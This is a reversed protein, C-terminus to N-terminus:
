VELALAYETPRLHIQTLTKTHTLLTRRSCTRGNDGSGASTRAKSLLSGTCPRSETQTSSLWSINGGPFVWETLQVLRTGASLSLLQQFRPRKDGLNVGSCSHQQSNDCGSQQGQGQRPWPSVAPAQPLCDFHLYTTTSEWYIKGAKLLRFRVFKRFCLHYRQNLLRRYIKRGNTQRITKYVRHMKIM